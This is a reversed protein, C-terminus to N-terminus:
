AASKGTDVGLPLMYYDALADLVVHLTNVYDMMPLDEVVVGDVVIQALADGTSLIAARTGRYTERLKLCWAEHKPDDFPDSGDYGGPDGEVVSGSRIAKVQLARAYDARFERYLKGAEHQRASLRGALFARGMWDGGEPAKADAESLGHIRQRAEVAPKTEDAAAKRANRTTPRQLAGSATRKGTKRKRGRRAM